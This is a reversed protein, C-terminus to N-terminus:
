RNLSEKFKKIGDMLEKEAKRNMEEHQQKLGLNVSFYILKNAENEGHLHNLMESIHRTILAYEALIDAEKGCIKPKGDEVKIM